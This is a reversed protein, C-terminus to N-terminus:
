ERTASDRSLAAYRAELSADICPSGRAIREAIVPALMHSRRSEELIQEHAVRDAAIAALLGQKILPFVADQHESLHM